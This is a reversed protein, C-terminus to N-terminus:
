WGQVRLRNAQFADKPNQKTLYDADQLASKIYSVTFERHVSYHHWFWHWKVHFYKTRNTLRHNTALALCGQNDEFVEAMITALVETPLGVKQAIGILMHKLPLLTRLAQSLASYEAELTSLSIETQLQSKWVLPCGSLKIIYGTRSRASDVSRDPERKYLGAFDADCFLELKLDGRPQLIMGKDATAALYRVITKVATAHSQKPDSSFRAAQSVAFSIDPRTNTCLYLLMGIVSRYSWSETMRPGDDDRGLALQSAPTLNPKCSQLGTETIIKAILGKQTLEITGSMRNREFKIGLFEEFSGEKDLSFGKQRLKHIFEDILHEKPAAIGIDDCYAVVMLSPSVLLCPDFISQTLGFHPLLLAQFLHQYRLRPAIALGYLSKKLRLCTNPGHSSRFGRPLHIWIPDKLPAQVFASAFDVSVSKWELVLSLVLFLRVTAWAVLPAFTEFDGEQLDGRVCFRAKGKKIDGDPTRKRRFTWTAPLIKSMAQTTPVEEWCDMKELQGIETIAAWRQREEESCGMAQDYSLVDPDQNIAKYASVMEIGIEPAVRSLFATFHAQPGPCSEGLVDYTLKAPPRIQRSSRRLSQTSTEPILITTSSPTSPTSLERSLTADLKIPSIPPAPPQPFEKTGTPSPTPDILSERQVLPERQQTPVLKEAESSHTM